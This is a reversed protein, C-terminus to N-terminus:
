REILFLYIKIFSDGNLCDGLVDFALACGRVGPTAVGEKGYRCGCVGSFAEM